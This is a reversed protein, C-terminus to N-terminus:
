DDYKEKRVPDRWRDSSAIDRKGIKEIKLRRFDMNKQKGEGARIEESIRNRM